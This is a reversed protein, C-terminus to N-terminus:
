LEQLIERWLAMQAWWRPEDSCSSEPTNCLNHTNLALDSRAMSNPINIRHFDAIFNGVRPWIWDQPLKKKAFQCRFSPNVIKTHNNWIQINLKWIQIKEDVDRSNKESKCKKWFFNPWRAMISIKKRPSSQHKRTCIRYKFWM